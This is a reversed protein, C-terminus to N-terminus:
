TDQDPRDQRSTGNIRGIYNRNIFDEYSENYKRVRLYEGFMYHLPNREAVLDVKEQRTALTKILHTISNKDAEAQEKVTMRSCGDRLLKITV